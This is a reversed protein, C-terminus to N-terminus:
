WWNKYHCCVSVMINAKNELNGTGGINGNYEMERKEAKIMWWTYPLTNAM